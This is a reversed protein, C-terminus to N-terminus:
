AWSEVLGLQSYTGWHMMLAFKQDRFWELKKVVEPDTPWVYQDEQSYNHVGNVVVDDKIEEAM